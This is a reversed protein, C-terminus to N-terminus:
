DGEISGEREVISLVSGDRDRVIDVSRIHETIFEILKAQNV